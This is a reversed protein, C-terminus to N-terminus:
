SDNSSRGAADRSIIDAHRSPSRSREKLKLVGIPAHARVGVIDGGAYRHPETSQSGENTRVSLGDIEFLPHQLVRRTIGAESTFFRFRDEPKIFGLTTEKEHPNWKPHEKVAAVM